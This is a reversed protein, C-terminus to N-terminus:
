PLLTPSLLLDYGDFDCSGSHDPAICVEREEGNVTVKDPIFGIMIGEGGVSQMPIYRIRRREKETMHDILGQSASKFFQDGIFRSFQEQKMVLVPRGSIPECLLNGSDCLGRFDLSTGNLEIHVMADREIAHKETIASWIFSILASGLALILLLVPPIHTSVAPFDGNYYGSNGIRISNIMRYLATIGGSLLFNVAMFLSLTVLQSKVSQTDFAIYCMLAAVALLIVPELMSGNSTFLTVLAYFAGVAAGFILPIVKMRHRRIKGCIYLVLFDMSFNIIFYIDGYIVEEM